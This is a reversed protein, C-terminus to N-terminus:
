DEVEDALELVALLREVLRKADERSLEVAVRGSPNEESVFGVSLAHELPAHFPHDYAIYAHDVAFWGDPGKGSGSISLKEAITTCM